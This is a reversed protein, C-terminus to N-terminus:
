RRGKSERERRGEKGVEVRKVAAKEEGVKGRKSKEEMGELDVKGKKGVEGEEKKREVREQGVQGTRERAEKELKGETRWDRKWSKTGVGEQIM